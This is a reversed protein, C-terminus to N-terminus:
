ALPPPAVPQLAATVQIPGEKPTAATTGLEGAPSGPVPTSAATVSVGAFWSKPFTASPSVTAPAGVESKVSLLAPGPVKVIVFPAEITLPAAKERTPSKAPLQPPVTAEPALQVIRTRKRGKLPVPPAM